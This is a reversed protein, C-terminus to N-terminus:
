GQPTQRCADLARALEHEERETWPSGGFRTRHLSEVLPELPAWRPERTALGRAHERLTRPAPRPYGARALAALLRELAPSPAVAAPMAEDPLAPAARRARRLLLVAAVLAVLAVLLPLAVRAPPVAGALERWALREGGAFRTLFGTLGALWGGPRAPRALALAPNASGGPTADCTVWGLGEFAVEFWAHGTRLTAVYTDADDDSPLALFGTAVRTPLGLTRLMLAAAAAYHTCSGARRELFHVLGALGAIGTARPEYTFEGRFYALVRAVRERDDAAGRTVERALTRISVLEPSHPPLELARTGALRAGGAAAPVDEFTRARSRVRFAFRERAPLPATLEADGRLLAGRCDLMVPQVPVFLVTESRASVRLPIQEVVFEDLPPGAAALRSWGDGDRGGDLAVPEGPARPGLGTETFRELVRGRVHLAAPPARDADPTRRLVVIPTDDELPSSSAWELTAPFEGPEPRTTASDRRGPVEDAPVAPAPTVTVEVGARPDLRALAAVAGDILTALVPAVLLLVLALGLAGAAQSWPRARPARGSRPLRQALTSGAAEEALTRLALLAAVLTALVLALAVAGEARSAALLGQLVAALLALRAWRERRLRPLVAPPVTRGALLLAALQLTALAGAAAMWLPELRAGAALAIATAACAAGLALALVARLSPAARDHGSM